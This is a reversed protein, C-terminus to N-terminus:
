VNGGKRSAKGGLLILLLTGFFVIAGVVFFSLARSISHHEVKVTSTSSWDSLNGQADILRARYLYDGDPMGTIVTASDAGTFITNFINQQQAAQQLEIRSNAPIEWSLTFSGDNSITTSSKIEVQGDASAILPILLLLSPIFRYLLKGSAIHNRM